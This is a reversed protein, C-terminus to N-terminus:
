AGNGAFALEYWSTGDSILVMTDESNDLTRDGGCKINGTGDKVVVTRAANNAQIVLIQGAVGGSITDLDDSAGDSETDVTHYSGTCTVAGSAITLESGAGISLRTKVGFVEANDTTTLVLLDAGSAIKVSLADALNDTVHVENQGTTGSFILDTGGTLTIGAATVLAAATGDVQLSLTSGGVVNILATTGDHQGIALYDTTPTTNSHIYVTPHTPSTIGWDTARAAKDTIHLMQSTDGLGLVLGHDSADATSWLLYADSGTGLILPGDDSLTSSSGSTEFTPGVPLVEIIDGNATSAELAIGEKITGTSAVKGGAAAYVYAGASIAESATMMMTGPKSKLLISVLDTSAFSEDQQVGIAQESATATTITGSNSYVRLYQARAAGARFSKTPTDVQQGM